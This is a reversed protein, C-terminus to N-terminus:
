RCALSVGNLYHRKVPPGIIAGALSIGEDVLFFLFFGKDFNSERQCFKRSGRMSAMKRMLLCALSPLWMVDIGILSMCRMLCIISKPKVAQKRHDIYLVDKLCGCCQTTPALVFKRHFEQGM